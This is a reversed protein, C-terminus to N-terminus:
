GIFEDGGAVGYGSWGPGWSNTPQRDNPYYRARRFTKTAEWYFSGYKTQQWYQATGPPYDNELVVHVSGETADSIRGVTDSAAAQGAAPQFLKALHATVANLLVLQQAAICVPGSGDNAHLFTAQNFYVNAQAATTPVAGGPSTFEPYTALWSTVPDTNYDFQVVVGM